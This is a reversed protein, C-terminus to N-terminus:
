GALQKVEMAEELVQEVAFGEAELNRITEAKAFEEKVVKDILCDIAGARDGALIRIAERLNELVEMQDFVETGWVKAKNKM